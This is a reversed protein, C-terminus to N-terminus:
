KNKNLFAIYHTESCCSWESLSLLFFSGYSCPTHQGTQPIISIFSGKSSIPFISQFLNNLILTPYVLRSMLCNWVQGCLGSKIVELALMAQYRVCIIDKNVFNLVVCKRIVMGILPHELKMYQLAQLCSLSHTFIIYKSALSDNIQKM